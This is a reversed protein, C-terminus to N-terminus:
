PEIEQSPQSEFDVVYTSMTEFQKDDTIISNRSNDRCPNLSM